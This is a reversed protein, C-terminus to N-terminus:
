NSNSPVRASRIRAIDEYYKETNYDNKPQKQYNHATNTLNNQWQNATHGQSNTYAWDILWPHLKLKKGYTYSAWHAAGESPDGFTNCHQIQHILAIARYDELVYEWDTEGFYITGRRHSRRQSHSSRGSTWIIKDVRHLAVNYFLPDERKLRNLIDSIEDRFEQSGGLIEIPPHKTYKPIKPPKTFDTLYIKLIDHSSIATDYFIMDDLDGQFRGFQTSASGITSPLFTKKGTAVGRKVKKGNVYLTPVNNKVVLGVHTWDSISSRWSLVTPMYLHKHEVVQVGNMGVAIGVGADNGVGGHDPFIVYQQPAYYTEMGGTTEQLLQTNQRPKVWFAYSFNEYVRPLNPKKEVGSFTFADNTRGFRNEANTVKTPKLHYPPCTYDLFDDEQMVYLALPPRGCCGSFPPPKPCCGFIETSIGLEKHIREKDRLGRSGTVSVSGDVSGIGGGGDGYGAMGEHLDTVFEAGAFDYLSLNRTTVLATASHGTDGSGRAIRYSVAKCNILRNHHTNYQNWLLQAQENAEQAEPDCPSLLITPTGLEDKMQPICLFAPVCELYNNGYHLTRDEPTLNWPLFDENDTAFAVFARSIQGINSLCHIRKAKEKARAAAPLLLGALIGFISITVLLEAVTFGSNQLRDKNM